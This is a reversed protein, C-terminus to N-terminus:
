VKPIVADLEIAHPHHLNHKKARFASTLTRELKAFAANIGSSPEDARAHVTHDAGANLCTVRVAFTVPGSHVTERIVHVRVASVRAALHRFIKAAKESVLTGLEARPSFGAASFIVDPTTTNM